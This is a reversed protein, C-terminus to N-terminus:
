RAGEFIESYFSKPIFVKFYNKPCLRMMTCGGYCLSGYECTFYCKKEQMLFSVYNDAFRLKSDEEFIEM